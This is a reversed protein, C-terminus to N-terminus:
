CAARQGQRRSRGIRDKLKLAPREVVHYSFASLAFTAGVGGFVRVPTPWDGVYDIVVGFVAFHWLYLSYSLRGLYVAPAASLLGAIPGDDWALAAIMAGAAAAILTFGGRYLWPSDAHVREAALLVVGGGFALGVVRTARGASRFHHDVGALAVAAGILLSDARTDTRIYLALWNGRYLHARWVAAVVAGIVTLLALSRRSLRAALLAVLVVPWVIYFQEEVALSWLHTLYPSLHGGHLEAWNTVYLSSWLVSGVSGGIADRDVVLSFALTAALLLAVAPLLRLARRRYFRGFLHHREAQFRETLLRTILFGSLVFFVDVGLYGGPLLWSRASPALIAGVHHIVVLLVAVARVGDLAPRHGLMPATDPETGRHPSLGAQSAPAAATRPGLLPRLPAGM